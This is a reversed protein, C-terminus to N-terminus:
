QWEIWDEMGLLSPDTLLFGQNIFHHQVAELYETMQKVKMLSTVPMFEMCVLKQEYTLPKLTSDYKERFEESDRRLIPIGLRLKCELRYENATQDGQKAADQFWQWALRNQKDSRPEDGPKITVTLVGEQGIIYRSLHQKDQDTKVTRTITKM